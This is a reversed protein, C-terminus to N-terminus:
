PTVGATDVAARYRELQTRLTEALPANAQAEALRLAERATNVANTAQGAESYAAALAHQIAPDAGGTLRNARQALDIARASDRLREDPTTALLWALSFLTGVNDPQLRLAADYHDVAERGRGQQQRIYGLNNHAPALDPRLRLAHGLHVAADELRGVGALVTGLNTRIDADDSRLALAQEYHAIADSAAGQRYFANGLNYHASSHAPNFELCRRFQVIAQSTDGNELYASGLNNFADAFDPQTVTAADFQAIAAAVNGQQLHANGLNIQALARDPGEAGLSLALQAHEIALTANGQEVALASLNNHALHSSPNRALTARWLTERNEYIRSQRWTATALVLVLLGGVALRLAPPRCWAAVAAAVLATPGIMAVYQYHDAVFSYRFTYLMFFGLLPSLTAVFFIAAAAFARRMPGRMFWILAGAGVCALLWAYASLDGADIRWRPNSFTLDVPWALKGLYFWIARSAILARDVLDFGFTEGATGQQHREWWLTLLGMALGLVAFPAVQLWRAPGVPQRKLWVILLLAAPLTCATTKSLLALSFAALALAYMASRRRGDVFEVWALLSLLMFFLSQVNKLETIWAVSEVQVPHLAFIVAALWAGPLGVRALLRWLLLANTAHLLLNVWHYGSANLGWLAHELRFTTYVLPFYQSPSDTSFWIRMLGDPATLLPNNTVYDDDDWIFGADWAPQYALITVGVLLAALWGVRSRRAIANAEEGPRKAVAM